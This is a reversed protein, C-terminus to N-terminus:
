GARELTFLVADEPPNNYYGRRRGLERLGCKEYLKRAAENSERVELLVAAGGDVRWKEVVARVLATGIGRRRMEAGVVANEIEWEGAAARWCLFGCVCGEQEAAIVQGEAIRTEYRNAPWHAATASAQELELMAQVDDLTAERISVAM